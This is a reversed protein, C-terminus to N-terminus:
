WKCSPRKVRTWLRNNRVSHEILAMAKVFEAAQGSTYYDALAYWTHVRWGNTRKEANWQHVGCTKMFMAAQKVSFM